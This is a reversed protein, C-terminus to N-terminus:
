VAPVQPIVELWTDVEVATFGNAMAHSVDDHSGYKFWLTLLRLTDQLAEQNHLAISRFFGEFLDPVYLIDSASLKGDVAQVVHAAIGNENASRKQNQTEMYGVVDFNALAWTHWAKYWTPDFYTALYYSHLIDEVNRQLGSTRLIGFPSCLCPPECIGLRRCTYSAM